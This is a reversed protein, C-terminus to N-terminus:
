GVWVKVEDDFRLQETVTTEDFPLTLTAPVALQLGAPEISFMPGCRVATVPLPMAQAAPAIRIETPGALAGPPVKLTVGALASGPTGVLAGGEAGITARVEDSPAAGGDNGGGDCGAATVLAALAMGRRAWTWMMRAGDTKM